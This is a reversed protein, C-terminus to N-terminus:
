INWSTDHMARNIAALFHHFIDNGSTRWLLNTKIRVLFIAQRLLKNTVYGRNARICCNEFSYVVTPLGVGLM